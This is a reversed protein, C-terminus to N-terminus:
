AGNGFGSVAPMQPRVRRRRVPDQHCRNIAVV